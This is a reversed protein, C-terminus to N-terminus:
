SIEPVGSRRSIEDREAARSIARLLQLDVLAIRVEIEREQRYARRLQAAFDNNM